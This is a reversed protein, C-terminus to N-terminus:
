SIELLKKLLNERRKIQENLEKIMEETATNLELVAFHADWSPYKKLALPFNTTELNFGCPLIAGDFCDKNYPNLYKEFEEKSEIIVFDNVKIM